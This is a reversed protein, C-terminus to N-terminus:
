PPPGFGAGELADARRRRSGTSSSGHRTPTSRARRRRRGRLDVDPQLNAPLEIAAAHGEHRDVDTAYVFGADVAGQTLKGVIGTM